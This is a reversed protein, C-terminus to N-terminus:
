PKFQSIAIATGSDSKMPCILRFVWLVIKSQAAASSSDIIAPTSVARHTVCGSHCSLWAALSIAALFNSRVTATLLISSTPSNAWDKLSIAAWSFVDKWAKAALSSFNALSTSFKGTPTEAIVGPPATIKIFEAPSCINPLPSIGSAAM